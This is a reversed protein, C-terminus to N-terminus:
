GISKSVGHIGVVNQARGLQAAFLQSERVSARQRWLLCMFEQLMMRVRLQNIHACAGFPFRRESLDRASRGTVRIEVQSGRGRRASRKQPEGMDEGTCVTVVEVM